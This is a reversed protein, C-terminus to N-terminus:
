KLAPEAPNPEVPAGKRVAGKQPALKALEEFGSGFESLAPREGTWRTEGRQVPGKVKPLGDSKDYPVSITKLIGDTKINMVCRGIKLNRIDNPSIQFEQVERNSAAGTQLSNETQYTSKIKAQTGFYKAWTESDEPWDQRFVFHVNTNGMIQGAFEQGIRKLDSLTQHVMHIMFGSSRGKNLFWAFSPSAFSDFEDIYVSFPKQSKIQPYTKRMGSIMLLEQLLLRGVRGSQVSKAETPLHVFLIENKLTVDLLSIEKRTNGPERTGFIRGWECVILNEIDYYLGLLHDATKGQCLVKLKLSVDVLSFGDPREKELDTFIKLLAMECAKAYFAEDYISSNFFKTQLESADGLRCPNWRVSEGPYDASLLHLDNERGIARCYARVRDYLERDGKPDIILMGHGRALDQQIMREMLVTKGCGTAGVIHTHRLRAEDPIYHCGVLIGTKQSFRSIGYLFRLANRLRHCLARFVAVTEKPHRIIVLVITAVALGILLKVFPTPLAGLLPVETSQSHLTRM